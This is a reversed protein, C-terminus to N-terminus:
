RRGMRIGPSAALFLALAALFLGLAGGSGSEGVACGGGGGGTEGKSAAEGDPTKDFGGLLVFEEEGRAMPVHSASFPHAYGSREGQYGIFCGEQRDDLVSVGGECFVFESWDSDELDRYDAHFHVEGAKTLLVLYTSSDNYNGEERFSNLLSQTNEESTSGEIRQAACEVFDKLSEDGMVESVPCEDEAMEEEIVPAPLGGGGGGGSGPAGSDETTQEQTERTEEEGGDYNDRPTLSDLLTRVVTKDDDRVRVRVNGSAGDYCGGGSVVHTITAAHDASDSDDTGRVTVTQPSNWRNRRFEISGPAVEVGDGTVSLSVTAKREPEAALSVTYSEETGEELSLEEKYFVLGMSGDNIVTTTGPLTPPPSSTTFLMKAPIANDNGETKLLYRYHQEPLLGSESFSRKDKGLSVSGRPLKNGQIVEHENVAARTITFGTHPGSGHASEDPADWTITISDHTAEWRVNRPARSAQGTVTGSTTAPPALSPTYRAMVPPACFVSDRAQTNLHVLYHLRANFEEIQADCSGGPSCDSEQVYAIDDPYLMNSPPSEEGLWKVFYMIDSHAETEDDLDWTVLGSHSIRVNRPVRDLNQDLGPFGKPEILTITTTTTAEITITFTLTATDGDRDTVTYTYTTANQSGTPRGSLTRTAANFVLGAPPAPSLSYTLTGNGGTAVPLTLPPIATNQTYSQNGITSNGFSPTTTGETVTITFNLTATDGDADTATWTYTRASHTGVPTGTLRRTGADFSLGTPPAPSLSYNLTGNGGTAAPLIVDAIPINETWTQSGITSDGFTPEIDAGVAIRFTLTATDGDRDTATYTYTTAAQSETPTGSLRRTAADFSLGAPPAPSLSYSLTGDGGTAAPLALASIATNQAYSQNPIRAAGFSPASDDDLITIGVGEYYYTGEVTGSVIVIVEEDGEEETDDVPTISVTFTVESEGAPFTIESPVTVAGYDDTDATNASFVVRLATGADFTGGVLTATATVTQQGGDERVSSPSFSLEVGTPRETAPNTRTGTVESRALRNGSSDEAFVEVDYLTDAELNGIVYITFVPLTNDGRSDQYTENGSKWRIRYRAVTVGSPADWEVNLRDSHGAVPTVTMNPIAPLTQAEALPAELVGLALLVM